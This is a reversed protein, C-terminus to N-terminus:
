VQNNLVAHAESRSWGQQIVTKELLLHNKNLYDVKNEAFTSSLEQKTLLVTSKEAV